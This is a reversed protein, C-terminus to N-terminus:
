RAAGRDNFWQWWHRLGQEEREEIMLQAIEGNWPDFYICTHAAASRYEEFVQCVGNSWFPCDGCRKNQWPFGSQAGLAPETRYYGADYGAKLRKIWDDM